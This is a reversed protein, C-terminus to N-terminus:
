SVRELVAIRGLVFKIQFLCDFVITALISCRQGSYVGGGVERGAGLIWMLLIVVWSILDEKRESHVHESRNDRDVLM